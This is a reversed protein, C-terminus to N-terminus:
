REKISQADLPDFIADKYQQLRQLLYELRMPTCKDLSEQRMVTGITEQLQGKLMAEYYLINNILIEKNRRARPQKEKADEQDDKKEKGVDDDNYCSDPSNPPFKFNRRKRSKHRKKLMATSVTKTADKSSPRRTQHERPSRTTGATKSFTTSNFNFSLTCTRAKQQIMDVSIASPDPGETTTFDKGLNTKQHESAQLKPWQAKPFPIPAIKGFQMFGDVISQSVKRLKQKYSTVEEESSYVKVTRDAIIRTGLKISNHRRVKLCYLEWTDFLCEFIQKAERKYTGQTEKDPCQNICINIMWALKYKCSDVFNAFSLSDDHYSFKILSFISGLYISLQQVLFGIIPATTVARIQTGFYALNAVSIDKICIDGYIKKNREYIGKWISKLQIFTNKVNSLEARAATVPKRLAELVSLLDELYTVSFECLALTVQLIILNRIMSDRVLEELTARLDSTEIFKYLMGAFSELCCYSVLFTEDMQELLSFLLEDFITILEVAFDSYDPFTKMLLLFSRLATVSESTFYQAKCRVSYTNEYAKCAKLVGPCHTLSSPVSPAVAQNVASIYHDLVAELNLMYYPICCCKDIMHIRLLQIKSDKFTPKEHLSPCTKSDLELFKYLMPVLRSFLTDIAIVRIDNVASSDGEFAKSLIKENLKELDRSLLAWNYKEDARFVSEQILTYLFGVHADYLLGIQFTLDDCLVNSAFILTDETKESCLLLGLQTVLWFLVWTPRMKFLGDSKFFFVLIRRPGKTTKLPSYLALGATVELLRGIKGESM